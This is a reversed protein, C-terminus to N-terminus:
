ITHSVCVNADFCRSVKRAYPGHFFRRERSLGLGVQDIPKSRIAVRHERKDSQQVVPNDPVGHKGPHPRWESREAQPRDSDHCLM